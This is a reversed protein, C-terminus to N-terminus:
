KSDDEIIKIEEKTLGYLKYVIEDIERDTQSIQQQIQEKKSGQATQIKTNLDLMIDVLSVINDHLGKEIKEEFDIKRIPINKLFMTKYIFYDNAKPVTTRKYFWELFKSNLVGLIYKVNEKVDNKLYFGCVTDGYYLKNFDLMFRNGDALEPVVIKVSNFNSEKRQNWLEYWKKSSKNFYERAKLKSKNECLFDYYKPAKIRISDEDIIENNTYPYFVCESVNEFSYKRINRGRLCPKFYIKEYKKQTILEENLLYVDNLGTVIGESISDVYDFLIGFRKNNKYKQIIATNLKDRFIWTNESLDDQNYLEFADDIDKLYRFKNNKNYPKSLIYIGTYNLADKFVQKHEFDIISKIVSNHLLYKRVDQGHDRKMFGTPCIYSLLGNGKLLNLGNEIFLVYIDYKGKASLYKDNFYNKNLAFGHFGIYPPNGIVVDFGGERLAAPFREEWNFPKVKYYDDGFYKKLELTSGSILSNGCKINGDLMPLVARGPVFGYEDELMKLMLSLKTVEVAQEDIDVGFIHEKLINAKEQISLPRSSQDHNLALEGDVANEPNGSVAQPFSVPLSSSHKRKNIKQQKYYNLMEEYARILFSGSGCAPDLIRLKKIKSPPLETLLKGVTNKIIYDVIYEPTYYVGGAKRVDMKLEYKVQHETLRATYGLYQEYISGLVELPIVDFQYPNYMELIIEKMVKFDIQLKEEWDKFAFLDSNYVRSYDKFEEALFLMAKPGVADTREEFIARLNNRHTLKRDECFRMFIIRDLLKQTIEKLYASDKELDQSHFLHPNNKYIDKALKERWNELDALIAKDVTQRDKPKKLLLKDLEGNEVSEKSFLWLKDFQKLYDRYNLEIKLGKKLNRLDPKFTVDFLKVGEFDTLLVFPVDRRNYGYRVAQEIHKDLDAKIPKAEVFMRIKGCAKLGYDVRGRSVRVEPSVENNDNVDWGLVDKLLPQIFATKTAEENYERAQGSALEVEFKNILKSLNEKAQLKTLTM